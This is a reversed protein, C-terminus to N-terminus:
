SGSGINKFNPTLAPCNDSAVYKIKQSKTSVEITWDKSTCKKDDDFIASATWQPAANAEKYEFNTSTPATYGILQWSGISQQDVFYADQM